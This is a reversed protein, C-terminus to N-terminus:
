PSNFVGLSVGFYKMACHFFPKHLRAHVLGTSAGALAIPQGCDRRHRSVGAAAAAPYRNSKQKKKKVWGKTRRGAPREFRRSAGFFSVGKM